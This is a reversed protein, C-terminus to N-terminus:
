KYSSGAILYNTGDITTVTLLAPETSSVTIPTFNTKISTSVPPTITRTTTSTIYIVYQGGARGNQFTFGTINASMAFNFIGTSFSNFNCTLTGTSFTPTGFTNPLTLQTTFTTFTSPTTWTPASTGQSTLVQGVTGAVSFGTTSAGTQYPISGAVGSAINTSTIANVANTASSATGILNGNFTTSTISTPTIKTNSSGDTLYLGNPSTVALYGIEDSPLYQSDKIWPYSM